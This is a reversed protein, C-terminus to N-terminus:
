NADQKYMKIKISPIVEWNDTVINAAYLGCVNEYEKTLSSLKEIFEKTKEKVEQDSVEKNKHILQRGM